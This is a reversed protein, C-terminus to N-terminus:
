KGATAVLIARGIVHQFINFGLYAPTGDKPVGLHEVNLAQVVIYYHHVGTGPPPAAGAFAAARADNPLLFAGAPLNAGGAAGAGTPLSTVTAPIDAVAWHWFGSGTPADPDYMTVAFSKTGAPFGSWSLQPSTDTGGMYSAMQAAPLPKGNQVDTSTVQFSPVKPLKDYPSQASLMGGAAFLAILFLLRTKM